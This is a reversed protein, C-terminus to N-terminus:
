RLCGLQNAVVIIVPVQDGGDDDDEEEEEEQEVIEKGATAPLLIKVVVHEDGVTMMVSLESLINEVWFKDVVIDLTADVSKM